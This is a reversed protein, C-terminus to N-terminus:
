ARGVAYKGSAGGGYGGSPADRPTEMLNGDEDTVLAREEEPLTELFERQVRREVAKRTEDDDSTQVKDDLRLSVYSGALTLALMLLAIVIRAASAATKADCDVEGINALSDKNTLKFEACSLNSSREAKVGAYLFNTVTALGWLQAIYFLQLGSRVHRDASVWGIFSAFCVVLTMMINQAVGQEASQVAAVVILGVIAFLAQTACLGKMFMAQMGISMQLSEAINDLQADMTTGLEKVVERARARREAETEEARTFSAAKHFSQTFSAQQKHLQKDLAAVQVKRLRDQLREALTFAYYAGFASCALLIIAIIIRVTNAANDGCGEVSRRVLGITARDCLLSSSVEANVGTYLYTTQTTLGWICCIGFFMLEGRCNRWKEKERAMRGGHIGICAAIFAVLGAIVNFLLDVTTPTDVWCICLTIVGFILTISAIGLVGQAVQDDDLSTKAHLDDVMSMADAVAGRASDPEKTEGSGGGAGGSGAAGLDLTKVQSPTIHEDGEEYSKVVETTGDHHEVHGGAAGGEADLDLPAVRQSGPTTEGLPELTQVQRMPKAEAAAALKRLEEEDRVMMSATDVAGLPRSGISAPSPAAEAADDDGLIPLARKGDDSM